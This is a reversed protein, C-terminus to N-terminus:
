YLKKHENLMAVFKEIHRARTEPRKADHIRYLIAYRNASNLQNFFAQAKPNKDLMAQLDDPVAANAQSDYAAQWRGDQQALEVEHLGAPRMKGEEFLRAVIERNRKSWKSKARRPTFRQLWFQEDYSGKQGDIWGYCLASDLAEDYTISPIGTAKKALKLWLGPSTAHHEALWAQWAQPTAFPIIPLGGKTEYTM